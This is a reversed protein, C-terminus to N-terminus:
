GRWKFLHLAKHCVFVTEGEEVNEQTPIETGKSKEQLVACHPKTAASVAIRTPAPCNPSKHTCKLRGCGQCSMMTTVSLALEQACDKRMATGQYGSNMDATHQHARDLQLTTSSSPANQKCDGVESSHDMRPVQESRKFVAVQWLQPGNQVVWSTNIVQPSCQM